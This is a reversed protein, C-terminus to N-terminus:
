VQQITWWMCRFDAHSLHIFNCICIKFSLVKLRVVHCKMLAMLVILSKTVYDDLVSADLTGQQAPSSNPPVNGNTKLYFYQM